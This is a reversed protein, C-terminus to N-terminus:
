LRASNLFVRAAEGSLSQSLAEWGGVEGFRQLAKSDGTPKITGSLCYIAKSRVKEDHQLSVLLPVIQVLPDQKLFAELAEPNNQEDDNNFRIALSM